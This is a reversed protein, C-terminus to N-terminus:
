LVSGAAEQREPSDVSTRTGLTALPVVDLRSSPTMLGLAGRFARLEDRSHRDLCSSNSSARFPEALLIGNKKFREVSARRQGGPTWCSVIRRRISRDCM